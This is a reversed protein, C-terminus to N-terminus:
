RVPVLRPREFDGRRARQHVRRTRPDPGVGLDDRLRSSCLGFWSDAQRPQGMRGHQLILARYADERHPEIELMTRALEVVEPGNDDEVAVSLQAELATLVASRLGHRRLEIWPASEELLLDGQYLACAERHWALAKGVAGERRAATAAAVADDFAHVDVWVDDVDLRYGNMATELRLAPRSRPGTVALIRRLTHVAVRLSSSATGLEHGAV